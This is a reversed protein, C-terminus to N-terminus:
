REPGTRQVTQGRAPRAKSAQPARKRGQGVSSAAPESRGTDALVRGRADEPEVGSSILDQAFQERREASDYDGAALDRDATGEPTQEPSPSEARHEDAAAETEAHQDIADAAALLTAAEQVEANGEAGERTARQWKSVLEREDSVRGDISDANAHMIEWDRLAEPDHGALWDKAQELESREARADVGLADRVAAPQGADLGYRARLEERMRNEAQAAEPEHGSWAHAVQYTDALQHPTATEWWSDQYVNRLQAVAAAKESAFRSTLERAEQESNARANRLAQERARSLREAVRSAAMMLNRLQAEFAEEIGDSEGAM